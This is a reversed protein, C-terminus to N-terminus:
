DDDTLKKYADVLINLEAVRNELYKIIVRQDVILKKRFEMLSFQKDKKNTLNGWVEKAIKVIYYTIM